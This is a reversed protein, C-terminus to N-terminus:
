AICLCMSTIGAARICGTHLCAGAYPLPLPMSHLSHKCKAVDLVPVMNTGKSIFLTCACPSHITPCLCAGAYLLPLPVWHPPYKFRAVDLVLVM